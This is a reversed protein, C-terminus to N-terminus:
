EGLLPYPEEKNNSFHYGIGLTLTMLSGNIGSNEQVNGMDFPRDQRVNFTYSYDLNVSWNENIAMYPSIGLGLTMFEDAQDFLPSSADPYRGPQWMAAGGLGGHVHLGLSESFSEFNLMKGANMVAHASIRILNTPKDFSETKIFQYNGTFMIGWTNNPMSKANFQFVTPEYIQPAEETALPNLGAQGGFNLGISFPKEEGSQAFANLLLLLSFSITLLKKMM